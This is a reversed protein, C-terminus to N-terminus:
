AADTPPSRTTALARQVRWFLGLGFTVVLYIAAAIDIILLSESLVLVTILGVLTADLLFLAKQSAKLSFYIAALTLFPAPILPGMLLFVGAGVAELTAHTAWLYFQMALALCVCIALVLHCAYANRLYSSSPTSPASM